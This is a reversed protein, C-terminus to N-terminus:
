IINLKPPVKNLREVKGNKDIRVADGFKAGLTYDKNCCNPHVTFFDGPQAPSKMPMAYSNNYLHIQPTIPEWGRKHIRDALDLEIELFTKKKELLDLTYPYLEECFRAMEAVEKCPKGISLAFCAQPSIGAYITDIEFVAVDGKKLVKPSAPGRLFVPGPGVAGIVFSGYWSGNKVMTGIAAAWLDMETNGPKLAGALAEHAKDMIESAKRLYTLEEESSRTVENQAEAFLPTADEFKAEPLAERLADYAMAAFVGNRYGVIGGRAKDLKMKIILNIADKIPQPGMVVEDIWSTEKIIHSFQAGLETTTAMQPKGELPFILFNGNNAFPVFNTIYFLQNALTPMFGAATTVIMFDLNHQRMAKRLAQWRLDRVRESPMQWTEPYKLRIPRGGYTYPCYESM